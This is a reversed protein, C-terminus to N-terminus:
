PHSSPGPTRHMWPLSPDLLGSGVGPVQTDKAQVHVSPVLPTPTPTATPGVTSVVGPALARGSGGPPVVFGQADPSPTLGALVRGMYTNHKTWDGAMSYATQFVFFIIVIGVIMALQRAVVRREFGANRKEQAALDAGGTDGKM